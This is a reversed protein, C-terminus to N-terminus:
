FGNSKIFGFIQLYAGYAAYHQNLGHGAGPAIYYESGAAANVYLAPRVAAAKNAPVLCNSQCFPLDNEGDVVDVPGTFGPAPTGLQGVTFLEGITFTNKAANAAILVLPDYNPARFFAFQNNSQSNM